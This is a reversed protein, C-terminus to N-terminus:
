YRLNVKDNMDILIFFIGKNVMKNFVFLGFYKM